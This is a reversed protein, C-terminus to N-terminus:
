RWGAFRECHGCGRSGGRLSLPLPSTAGRLLLAPRGPLYPCGPGGAPDGTHLGMAGMIMKALQARLVEEYPRFYFLGSGPPVETGVVVGSEALAAIYPYFVHDAGVDLFRPGGDAGTSVNVRVSYEQQVGEQGRAWLALTHHDYGTTGPEMVVWGGASGSDVTFRSVTPSHLGEGDWGILAAQLPAGDVGDVTVSVTVDGSTLPLDLYVAGYNPVRITGVYPLPGQLNVVSPQIDLTDYHFSYTVPPRGDVGPEPVPSLLDTLVPYISTDFDDALGTRLALPLYRGDEVWLAAHEGVAQVTASIELSGSGNGWDVATFTDGDGVQVEREGAPTDEAARVSGPGALGAVILLLALTLTWVLASLPVICRTVGGMRLAESRRDGTGCAAEGM